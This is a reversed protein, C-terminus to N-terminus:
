DGQVMKISYSTYYYILKISIIHILLYLKDCYLITLKIPGWNSYYAYFDKSIIPIITFYNFYNFHYLLFLIIRIYYMRFLAYFLGQQLILELSFLNNFKCHFLLFLLFIFRIIIFLIYSKNFFTQIQQHAQTLGSGLM